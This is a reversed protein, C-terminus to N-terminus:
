GRLIEELEQELRDLGSAKDIAANIRARGDALKTLMLEGLSEDARFLRANKELWESMEEVYDEMWQVRTEFGSILGSFNKDLYNRIDTIAEDDDSPGHTTLDKQVNDLHKEEVEAEAKKAAKNVGRSEKSDEVQQAEESAEVLADKAAAAHIEDPTPERGEDAAAKAAKGTNTMPRDLYHRLADLTWNGKASVEPDPDNKLAFTVFAKGNKWRGSRMAERATTFSINPQPRFDGWWGAFSRYDALQQYELGAEDAFDALTHGRPVGKGKPPIQEFSARAIELRGEFTKLSALRAKEVSAEWTIKSM